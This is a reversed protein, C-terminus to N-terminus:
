AIPEVREKEIVSAVGARNDTFAGVDAIQDELTTLHTAYHHCKIAGAFCQACREGDARVPMM